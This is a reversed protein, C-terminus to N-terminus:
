GILTYDDTFIFDDSPTTQEITPVVVGYSTARAEFIDEIELVDNKVEYCTGSVTIEAAEASYNASMQKITCIYTQRVRKGDPTNKIKIARFGDYLSLNRNFPATMSFNKEGDRLAMALRAAEDAAQSQTGPFDSVYMVRSKAPRFRVPADIARVASVSGGGWTSGESRYVHVSHYSVETRPTTSFTKYNDPTYISKISGNSGPKPEPMVIRRGGPADFAVFKAKGMVSSAVEQLSTGMPYLEGAPLNFKRGGLVLFDGTNYEARRSLEMFIYELNKGQYTVTNTLFSDTLLRFPGFAVASARPLTEHDTPMQVRGRFYPKVDDRGYGISFSLPADTYEELSGEVEFDMNSGSAGETTWEFSATVLRDSWDEGGILLRHATAYKSPRDRLQAREGHTLAM